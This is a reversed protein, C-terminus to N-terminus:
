ILSKAVAAVAAVFISCGLLPGKDAEAIRRVVFELCYLIVSAFQLVMLPLAVALFFFSTVIAWLLSLTVATESYLPVPPKPGSIALSFFKVGFHVFLTVLIVMPALAIIEFLAARLVAGPLSKANLISRIAQMGIWIGGVLAVPIQCFMVYDRFRYPAHSGSAVQTVFYIFCALVLLLPTVVIWLKYSVLWQLLSARKAEALWHWAILTQKELRKKGAPGVLLDLLKLVAVILAGGLVVESLLESNDKIFESLM